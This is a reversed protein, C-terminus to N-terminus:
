SSLEQGSGNYEKGCTNCVNAWSDWLEIKNSCGCRIKMPTVLAYTIEDRVEYKIITSM